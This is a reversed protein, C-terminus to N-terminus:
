ASSPMRSTSLDRPSPSTYLLCVQTDDFGVPMERYLQDIRKRNSVLKGHIVNMEEIADLAEQSVPEATEQVQLEKRSQRSRSDSGRSRTSSGRRSPIGLSKRTASGTSNSGKAPFSRRASSGGRSASGGTAPAPRSYSQALSDGVVLLVIAVAIAFLPIQFYNKM